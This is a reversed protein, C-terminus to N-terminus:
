KVLPRVPRQAGRKTKRAMAADIPARYDLEEPRIGKLITQRREVRAARAATQSQIFSRIAHADASNPFAEKIRARTMSVAVTIRKQLDQLNKVEAGVEDNQKKLAAEIEELQEKPVTRLWAQFEAPSMERSPPDLDDDDDLNLQAEEDDGAGPQDTTGDANGPQDGGQDGSDGAGAGEGSGNGQDGEGAGDGSEQDDEGSGGNDGETGEDDDGASAKERNFDPAANVIDQRKVSEGVLGSVTEVKPAGDATWQDDDLPDLQALAAKIKEIDAM